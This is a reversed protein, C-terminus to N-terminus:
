YKRKEEEGKKREESFKEALRKKAAIDLNKKDEALKMEEGQKKKQEDLIEALKKMTSDHKKMEEAIRKEEEKKEEVLKEALRKKIMFEKMKEEEKRRMDEALKNVEEEKRLNQLALADRRSGISFGLSTEKRKIEAIKQARKKAEEEKRKMEEALKKVEGEKRKMEEALKKVEEEKRRMEEAMRKGEEDKKKEEAVKEAIKKNIMFEQLREEENRKMEEALKNLEEEKRLNQLALVDRRAGISSVLSTEKRKIEALQQARKKADKAELEAANEAAGIQKAELIAKKREEIDKKKAEMEGQRILREEETRKLQEDVAKQIKLQERVAIERSKRKIRVVEYQTEGLEDKGIKGADKTPSQEHEHKPAEVNSMKQNKTLDDLYSDNESKTPNGTIGELIGDASIPQPKYKNCIISLSKISKKKPKAIAVEFEPGM